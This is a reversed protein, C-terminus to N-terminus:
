DAHANGDGSLVWVIMSNGILGNQREWMEEVKLSRMVAALQKEESIPPTLGAERRV